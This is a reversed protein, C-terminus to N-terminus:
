HFPPWYGVLITMGFAWVDGAPTMICEDELYEPAMWCLTGGAHQEAALSLSAGALHSFGFDTLLARGDDSVM